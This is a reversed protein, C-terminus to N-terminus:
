RLAEYGAIGFPGGALLGLLVLCFVLTDAWEGPESDPLLGGFAGFLAAALLLLGFAWAALTGTPDGAVLQYAFGSLLVLATGLTTAALLATVVGGVRRLDTM